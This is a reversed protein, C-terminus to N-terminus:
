SVMLNSFSTMRTLKQINNLLPSSFAIDGATTVDSHVFHSEVTSIDITPLPVLALTASTDAEEPTTAAAPAVTSLGSYIASDGVASLLTSSSSINLTCFRFGAYTFSSSWTTGKLIHDL